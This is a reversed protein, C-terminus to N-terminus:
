SIASNVFPNGSGISGNTESPTAVRLDVFHNYDHSLGAFNVNVDYFLNNQAVWNSTTGLPGFVTPSALFSNNRVTVNNLTDSTWTAILGNAGGFSANRNVFISGHVVLGDGAM